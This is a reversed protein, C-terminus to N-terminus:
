YCRPLYTIAKATAGGDSIPWVAQKVVFGSALSYHISRYQFLDTHRTSKMGTKLLEIQEIFYLTM